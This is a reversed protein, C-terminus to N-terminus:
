KKAQENTLIKEIFSLGLAVSYFMPEVIQFNHQISRNFSFIKKQGDNFICDHDDLFNRVPLSGHLVRYARSNAGIGFHVLHRSENVCALERFRLRRAAKRALDQYFM